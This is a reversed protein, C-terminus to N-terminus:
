CMKDFKDLVKKLNKWIRKHQESRERSEGNMVCSKYTIMTVENQWSTNEQKKFNKSKNKDNASRSAYILMGYESQWASKVFEEKRKQREQRLYM